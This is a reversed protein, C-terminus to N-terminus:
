FQEKNIYVFTEFRAYSNKSNSTEEKKYTIDGMIVDKDVVELSYNTKFTNISLSLSCVNTKEGDFNNNSYDGFSFTNDFLFKFNEKDMESQITTYFYSEAKNSPPNKIKEDINTYVEKLENTITRGLSNAEIEESFVMNDNVYLVVNKIKGSYEYEFDGTEKIYDLYLDNFILKDTYKYHEHNDYEYKGVGTGNEFVLDFTLIFGDDSIRGSFRYSVVMELNLELCSSIRHRITGQDNQIDTITDNSITKSKFYFNTMEIKNVILKKDEVIPEYVVITEEFFISNDDKYYVKIPYDGVVRTNIDNSDTQLQSYDIQIMSDDDFVLMVEWDIISFTSRQEFATTGSKLYIKTPHKIHQGPFEYVEDDLNNPKIIDVTELTKKVLIEGDIRIIYENGLTIFEYLTNDVEISIGNDIKIISEPKSQVINDIQIPFYSKLKDKINKMSFEFSVNYAKDTQNNDIYRVLLEEKITNYYNWDDKYGDYNKIFELGLTAINKKYSYEFVKKNKEYVKQDKTLSLFNKKFKQYDNSYEITKIVKVFLTKDETINFDEAKTTYGLDTYIEENKEKNILNSVVIRKNKKFEFIDTTGDEYTITLKCKEEKSEDKVENDTSPLITTQNSTSSLPVCSALLPTFLFVFLVIFRKFM